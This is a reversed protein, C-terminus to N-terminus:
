RVAYSGISLCPIEVHDIGPSLYTLWIREVRNAVTGSLFHWLPSLRHTPHGARWPGPPSTSLINKTPLEHLQRCLFIHRQSLSPESQGSGGQFRHLHDTDPGVSVAAREPGSRGRFVLLEKWIRMFGFGSKQEKIVSMLSHKERDTYM